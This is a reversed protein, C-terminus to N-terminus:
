LPFRAIVFAFFLIATLYSLLTADLLFNPRDLDVFGSSLGGVSARGSGRGRARLPGSRFVELV